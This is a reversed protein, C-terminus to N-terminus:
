KKLVDPYKKLLSKLTEKERKKLKKEHEDCLTENIKKYEEESIYGLNLLLLPCPDTEKITIGLEGYEMFPELQLVSKDTFFIVISEGIADYQINEVTKEKAEKYRKITKVFQSIKM